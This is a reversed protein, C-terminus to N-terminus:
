QEVMAELRVLHLVMEERQVGAVAVAVQIIKLVEEELIEMHLIIPMDEAIEITTPTVAEALVVRPVVVM